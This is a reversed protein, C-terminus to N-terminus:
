PIMVELVRRLPDSGGYFFPHIWPAVIIYVINFWAV